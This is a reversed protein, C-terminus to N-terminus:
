DDRDEDPLPRELIIRFIGLDFVLYESDAIENYEVGVSLGYIWSTIIFM